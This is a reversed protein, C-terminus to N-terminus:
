ENREMERWTSVVCRGVYKNPRPWFSGWCMGDNGKLVGKGWEGAKERRANM